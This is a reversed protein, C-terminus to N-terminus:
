ETWVTFLSERTWFLAITTQNIGLKNSVKCVVAHHALLAIVNLVKQVALQYCHQQSHHQVVFLFLVCKLMGLCPLYVSEYTRLNLPWWWSMCYVTTVSFWSCSPISLETMRKLYIQSVYCLKAYRCSLYCSKAYRYNLYCSKAYRYSVYCSKAYRYSFYCSKAYRSSLCTVHSQM